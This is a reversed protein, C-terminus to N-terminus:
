LWIASVEVNPLRHFKAIVALLSDLKVLPFLYDVRHPINGVVDIEIFLVM